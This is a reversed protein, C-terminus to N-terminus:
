NDVFSSGFDSESWSDNVASVTKKDLMLAGKVSANGEPSLGDADQGHEAFCVQPHIKSTISVVLNVL